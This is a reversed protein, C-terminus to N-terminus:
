RLDEKIVIQNLIFDTVISANCYNGFMMMIVVIRLYRYGLSTRYNPHKKDIDVLLAIIKNLDRISTENVTAAKSYSILTKAITKMNSYKSFDLRKKKFYKMRRTLYALLVVEKGAQNNMKGIISKSLSKVYDNYYGILSKADLEAVICDECVARMNYTNELKNVIDTIASVYNDKKIPM